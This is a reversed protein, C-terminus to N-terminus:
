IEAHGGWKIIAIKYVTIKNTDMRDISVALNEKQKELPRTFIPPYRFM